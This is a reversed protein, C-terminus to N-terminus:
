FAYMENSQQLIEELSRDEKSSSGLSRSEEQIVKTDTDINNIFSKNNNGLLEKYSESDQINKNEYQQLQKILDSCPFDSLNIDTYSGKTLKAFFNSFIYTFVVSFKIALSKSYALDMDLGTKSSSGKLNILTNIHTVYESDADMQNNKIAEEELKTLISDHFTIVIVYDCIIESISSVDLYKSLNRFLDNAKTSTGYISMKKSLEPLYEGESILRNTLIDRKGEIIVEHYEKVSESNPNFMEAKTIKYAKRVLKDTGKKCISNYKINMKSTIRGFFDWKQRNLENIDKLSLVSSGGWAGMLLGLQMVISSSISSYFAAVVIQKDNTNSPDLILNLICCLVDMLVFDKLGNSGGMINNSMNKNLGPNAKIKNINNIIHWFIEKSKKNSENFKNLVEIPIDISGGMLANKKKKLYTRKKMGELPMQEKNQSIYVSHNNYGGTISNFNTDRKFKLIKSDGSLSECTLVLNDGQIDVTYEVGTFSPIKNPVKSPNNTNLSLMCGKLKQLGSSFIDKNSSNLDKIIEDILNKELIIFTLFRRNNSFDQVFCSSSYIVDWLKPFNIELYQKINCVFRNKKLGGM